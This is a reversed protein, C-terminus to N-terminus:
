IGLNLYTQKSSPKFHPMDLFLKPKSDQGPCNARTMGQRKKTDMGWLPFDSQPNDIFHSVYRPGTLRSLINSQPNIVSTETCKSKSRNIGNIM